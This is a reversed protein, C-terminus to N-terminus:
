RGIHATCVKTDKGCPAFPTEPETLGPAFTERGEVIRSSRVFEGRAMFAFRADPHSGAPMHYNNVVRTWYAYLSDDDVEWMRHPLNGGLPLPTM